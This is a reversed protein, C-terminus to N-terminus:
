ALGRATTVGGIPARNGVRDFPNPVRSTGGTQDHLLASTEDRGEGEEGSSSDILEEDVEVGAAVPTSTSKLTFVGRKTGRELKDLRVGYNLANRVRARSGEPDDVGLAAVVADVDLIENPRQRFVEIVEDVFPSGGDDAEGRSRRAEDSVYEKIFPMVNERMAQLRALTGQEVDLRDRAETVRAEADAIDRNLREVGDWVTEDATIQAM